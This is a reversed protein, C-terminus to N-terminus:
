AAEDDWSHTEQVEWRLRGNGRDRWIEAPVKRGNPRRSLVELFKALFDDLAKRDSDNAPKFCQPPQTM